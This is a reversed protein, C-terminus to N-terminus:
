IHILSLALVVAIANAKQTALARASQSPVWNLKEAAALVKARTDDSIPRKGSMAHSVTAKTVGAERAVDAITTRSM